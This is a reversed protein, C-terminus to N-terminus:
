IGCLRDIVSAAANAIFITLSFWAALHVPGQVTAFYAAACFQILLLVASNAGFPIPLQLLFWAIPIALAISVAPSLPLVAAVYCVSVVLVWISMAYTEIASQDRDIALLLHDVNMAPHVRGHIAFAILRSLAFRHRSPLWLAAPNDEIIEM